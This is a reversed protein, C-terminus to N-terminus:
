LASLVSQVGVSGVDERRLVYPRLDGKEWGGGGGGKGTSRLREKLAEPGIVFLNGIENLLVFTSEFAPDLEWSRLLESYRSIDKTVMIGGAANVSFKQFHALLLTRLATALETLFLTLNPSPSLATLSLTHVKSLFSFISHCTQWPNDTLGSPFIPPLIPFPAVRVPTQLQELWAGGADDRPRFDSKNQRGLLKSVWTIVVDISRQMISNVKEEIRDMAQNATKEMDRRITVNASALPILVSRICTNMLHM